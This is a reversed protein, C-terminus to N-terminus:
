IECIGPQRQGKLAVLDAFVFLISNSKHWETPHTQWVRTAQFRCRIGPVYQAQERRTYYWFSNPNWYSAHTPDQFAGRGDTSPTRSVLWGGPVLVRHIENMLGVTCLPSGDTGHTCAADRCHPIRQLLDYARVCGVSSDPFPLGARINCVVDAGTAGVSRYGAPTERGGGLDLMPLSERRCWEAILRYSYTNSIKQQRDQIEANRQLFTNSGEDHLRYFYLCKPIHVFKVGALYTRCLLDHDDAVPLNADHGGSADYAARTWARLHNPAYFILHLSSPDTQFARMARYTRGEFVTEYDEWGNNPNYTRSSGDSRFECFDSYVFCAQSDDVARRVDRLATPALLDDHDLELLIDGRCQQCAFRKLAGIGQEASLVPAPVLRVRPDRQVEDPIRVDAGNPVIVWEWDPADVQALLTRHAEALFRPAHTPTFLSIM